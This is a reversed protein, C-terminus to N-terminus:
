EATSQRSRPPAAPNEQPPATPPSSTSGTSTPAIRGEGGWICPGGHPVRHTPPHAQGTRGGALGEGEAVSKPSDGGHSRRPRSGALSLRQAHRPPAGLWVPAGHTTLATLLCGWGGCAPRHPHAARMAVCHPAPPPPSPSPPPLLPPPSGNFFRRLLHSARVAVGSVLLPAPRGGRCQPLPGVWM